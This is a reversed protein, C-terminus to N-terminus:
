ADRRVLFWRGVTLVAIAYLCLMAMGTWPSLMDEVPKTVALSNGAIGPPLYKAVATGLAGFAIAPLVLTIGFVAAIASATHRIILGIGVSILGILGLYTGALVVARLVGPDGLAPRPVDAGLAARGAFFAAFTILEGLVLTTVGFVLAKAALTLKRNPITALTARISGSTYESTVVLVGLIGIVLQGFALGALVNNTPDFSAQAAGGRPAKTNAMAAVGIGIMGATTLVLAWLTSRLSRLKIWEMRVAQALGYHGAPISATREWTGTATSM